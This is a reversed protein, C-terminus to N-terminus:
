VLWVLCALLYVPTVLLLSDIRDLLGGHGPIIQGTDKVGVRRKVTSVLLDGAQGVAGLLLGTALVAVPAATFHSSFLDFLMLAVGSGAMAGAFGAWTKNPSIRPALKPGGIKKGAAYAGIDGAWVSIMLSLVLFVGAPGFEVRLVYFSFACVAIYLAWLALNRAPNKGRLEMRYFENLAIGAGAGILLAFPWGGMVIVWLVLPAAIAASLIRKHLPSLAM